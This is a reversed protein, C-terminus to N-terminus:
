PGTGEAPQGEGNPSPTGPTNEETVEPKPYLEELWRQMNEPLNEQVWAQDPFNDRVYAWVNKGGGVEEQLANRLDDQAKIFDTSNERMMSESTRVAIWVEEAGEVARAMTFSRRYGPLLIALLVIALTILTVVNVIIAGVLSVKRRKREVRSIKPQAAAEGSEDAGTIGQMGEMGPQDDRKDM